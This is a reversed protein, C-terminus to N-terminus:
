VQDIMCHAFLTLVRWPEGNADHCVIDFGEFAGYRKCFGKRRGDGNNIYALWNVEEGNGDDKGVWLDFLQGDPSTPIRIKGNGDKDQWDWNSWHVVHGDNTCTSNVMSESYGRCVNDYQDIFLKINGEGCLVAPIMALLAYHFKM